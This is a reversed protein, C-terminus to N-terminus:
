GGTTYDSWNREEGDDGALAGASRHKGSGGGTRKEGHGDSEHKGSEKSPGLIIFATFHYTFHYTSLSLYFCYFSLAMEFNMISLSVLKQLMSHM